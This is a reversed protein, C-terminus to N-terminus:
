TPGLLSTHFKNFISFLIIASIALVFALHTTLSKSTHTFLYGGLMPGVVTMATMVSFILGTTATPFGLIQHLYLPQYLSVVWTTSITVILLLISLRIYPEKFLQIPLIPYAFRKEHYFLFLTSAATIFISAIILPSLWGIFDGQSIWFCLTGISITLCIMGIWDIPEHQSSANEPLKAVVACLYLALVALPIDILFLWRWGFLSIILGSVCPGSAFGLGLMSGLFAIAKTEETKDFLHSVIALGCPLFAAASLGQTLRMAILWGINQALGAGLAACAFLLTAAYLIRRRGWADALRGSAVMCPALTLGFSTMLWQLQNMGLNFESQLPSLAMNVGSFDLGM